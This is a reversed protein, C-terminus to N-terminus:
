YSFENGVRGKIVNRLLVLAETRQQQSSFQVRQSFSSGNKIGSIVIEWVRGKRGDGPRTYQTRADHIESVSYSRRYLYGFVPNMILLDTFTRIVDHAPVSVQGDKVLITNYSISFLRYVLLMGLLASYYYVNNLSEPNNMFYTAVEFAYNTTIGIISDMEKIDPTSGIEYMAFIFFIVVFTFTTAIIFGIAKFIASLGRDFDQQSISRSNTLNVSNKM